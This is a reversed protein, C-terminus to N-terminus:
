RVLGGRQEADTKLLGGYYRELGEQHFAVFKTGFFARYNEEAVKDDLLVVEIEKTPEKGNAFMLHSTKLLHKFEYDAAPLSYGIFIWKKAAVLIREAAQWSSAFAHTRFSKRYSFTAIHPGVACGCNLCAREGQTADMQVLYPKSKLSEDFLRLDATVLGAKIALSLKQYRDYFLTKCNDCYVWNSSGHVKVIGVTLPPVPDLTGSWPSATICYDVALYDYKELNRELVIDWNMVIFHTHQNCVKALHIDLFRQIAPSPQYQQDLIQFARYILMRRVARLLKPTFKRGLNHGSNTSLDIMTFIDELSPIPDDTKWYFTNELFERIAASIIKDLDTTFADGLLFQSLESTLPLGACKSFGAGLIVAYDAKEIM